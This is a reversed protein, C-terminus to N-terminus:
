FYFFLCVFFYIACFSNCKSLTSLNYAVVKLLQLVYEWTNEYCVWFSPLAIFKIIDLFHYNNHQYSGFQKCVSWYDLQACLVQWYLFHYSSSTEICPDLRFDCRLNRKGKLCSYMQLLACCADCM